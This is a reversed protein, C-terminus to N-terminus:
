ISCCHKTCAKFQNYFHLSCHPLQLISWSIIRHMYRWTASRLWGKLVSGCQEINKHNLNPYRFALNGLSETGAKMLIITWLHPPHVLFWDSGHRILGQGCWSGMSWDRWKPPGLNCASDNSSLSPAETNSDNAGNGTKAQIWSCDFSLCTYPTVGNREWAGVKLYGLLAQVWANLSLTPM